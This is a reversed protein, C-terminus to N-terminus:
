LGGRAAIFSLVVLVFGGIAIFMRTSDKMDTREEGAGRKVSEMVTVRNALTQIRELHDTFRQESESRTMLNGLMRQLESLAVYTADARKEISTEAKSIAKESAEFAAEVAERQADTAKAASERSAKLAVAVAEESAEFRENYRTDREHFVRDHMKELNEIAAQVQALKTNFLQELAAIDRHLAETTRVTPDPRPRWDPQPQTSDEPM